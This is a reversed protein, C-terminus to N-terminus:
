GARGGSLLCLHHVSLRTHSREPLGEKGSGGYALDVAHRGGALLSRTCTKTGTGREGFTGEWSPSLPLFPWPSLAMRGGIGLDHLPSPHIWGM